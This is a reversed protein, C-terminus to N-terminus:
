LYYYYEFEFIKYPPQVLISKRSFLKQVVRGQPGGYDGDHPGRPDKDSARSACVKLNEIVVAAM